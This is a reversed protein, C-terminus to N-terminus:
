RRQTAYQSENPRELQWFDYFNFWQLPAKLCYSELREAYAGALSVLAADRRQRPLRVQDCFREFHIEWGDSSRLSFLLYVSCQLVSALVYPGIPFPALEGLFPVQITRASQTVPIRDGAIAVFEGREVRDKLLAATAPTLETVQLIDLQSDPNIQALLRNFRAANKTHLLVTLKLGPHRQSMVRCLDLNGLHCCILLAGRKARIEEAIQGVGYVRVSGAHFLGSWLLLKDLICESFSAFHRLVGVFGNDVTSGGDVKGVRTLFQSSARRAWPKAIIYWILVPFLAARFPRRGFVRCLWFLLRIGAIFSLEDIQAWHRSAGATRTSAAM